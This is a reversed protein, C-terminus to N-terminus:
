DIAREVSFVHGCNSCESGDVADAPIDEGCDPCQADVYSQQLETLPVYEFADLHQWYIIVGGMGMSDQNFTLLQDVIQHFDCSDDAHAIKIAERIVEFCESLSGVIGPCERGYMGRGSYRERLSVSDDELNSLAKRIFEEFKTM